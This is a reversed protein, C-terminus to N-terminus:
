SRRGDKGQPGEPRLRAAVRRRSQLSRRPRLPEVASYGREGSGANGSAGGRLPARGTRIAQPGNHGSNRRRPSGDAGGRSGPPGGVPGVKECGTASVFPLEMDWDEGSEIARRVADRLAKGADDPYFTLILDPDPVFDPGVEHIERTKGTWTVTNAALDADWGGVGSVIAIEELLDSECAAQRHDEKARVLASRTEMQARHSKALGEVVTGLRRLQKLQDKSPTLPTTGMVCLTGLRNRGDLSLPCGAYFRIHPAGTVQPNTRFRPDALTDPVVMLDNSMIAHHCFSIDRPTSELDLGYRAKFWQEDEGVLSILAIPCNFLAAVVEVVADYEPLRESRLIQLANLADLREIEAPEQAIQM